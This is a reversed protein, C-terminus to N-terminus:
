IYLITNNIITVMNSMVKIPSIRSTQVKQGGENMECM